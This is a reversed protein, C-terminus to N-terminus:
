FIGRPDPKRGGCEIWQTSAPLQEPMSPVQALLFGIADARKKKEHQGDIEEPREDDAHLEVHNENM